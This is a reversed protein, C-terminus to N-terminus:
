MLILIRMNFILEHKTTLTQINLFIISITQKGQIHFRMHSLNPVPTSHVFIM